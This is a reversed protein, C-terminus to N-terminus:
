KPVGEVEIQGLLAGVHRYFNFNILSILNGAWFGKYMNKLSGVQGIRERFKLFIADSKKKHYSM